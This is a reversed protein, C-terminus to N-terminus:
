FKEVWLNYVAHFTINWFCLLPVKVGHSFLYIQSKFLYSTVLLM